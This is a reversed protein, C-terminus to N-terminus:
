IQFNLNVSEQRKGLLREVGLLLLLKNRAVLLKLIIRITDKEICDLAILVLIAIQTRLKNSFVLIREPKLGAM